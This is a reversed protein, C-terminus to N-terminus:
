KEEEGGEKALEEYVPEAEAGGKEAGETAKANPVWLGSDICRQMHYKAEQLPFPSSLTLDRDWTRVGARGRGPGAAWEWGWLFFRVEEWLQM